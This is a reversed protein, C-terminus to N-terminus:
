QPIYLEALKITLPDRFSLLLPEHPILDGQHFSGARHDSDRLQLLFLEDLVARSGDMHETVDDIGKGRGSGEFLALVDQEDTTNHCVRGGVRIRHSIEGGLDQGPHALFDVALKVDNAGIADLGDPVQFGLEDMDDAFDFIQDGVVVARAQEDNGGAVGGADGKLEQFGRGM